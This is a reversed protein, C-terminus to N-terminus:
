GTTELSQWTSAPGDWTAVPRVADPDEDRRRRDAATAVTETWGPPVLGPAIDALPALVFLREAADRHPVVLLRDAKGPDLSVGEPPRDIALRARGFVLLDLDLERPGWREREQRGFARELQKLAVLLAIAGTAPDRGGPVDLAVVANRFWPQDTVGVPATAYLRSVSRLRVGPLIALARIGKAITGAADGLNAGLGIYARVTRVNLQGGSALSAETADTAAM